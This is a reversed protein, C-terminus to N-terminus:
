LVKIKKKNRYVSICKGTIQKEQVCGFSRSDSSYNRNDGLCFVEGPKVTVSNFVAPNTIVDKAIYPENLKKGNLFVFGEKIEVKDGAVGIVRKVLYKGKEDDSLKFVCIDGRKLKKTRRVYIKDGQQAVKKGSKIEGVITPHMSSGSVVFSEFGLFFSMLSILIILTATSLSVLLIYQM